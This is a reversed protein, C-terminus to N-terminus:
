TVHKVFIIEKFLHSKLSSLNLKFKIKGNLKNLFINGKECLKKSKINFLNWGDKNPINKTELYDRIAQNSNLVNEGPSSNQNIETFPKEMLYNPKQLINQQKISKLFDNEKVWENPVQNTSLSKRDNEECTKALVKKYITKQLANKMDIVKLLSNTKFAM